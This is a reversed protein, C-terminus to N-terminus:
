GIRRLRAVFFGDCLSLTGPLVGPLVRLWGNDDIAEDFGPIEGPLLPVTELKAVDDTAADDDSGPRSLLWQVQDESEQRLLSCTAYVMIGGIDLLKGAAHAALERQVVLLEELDPPSKRLVDPRRAGVGTASCPADVLVGSIKSCGPDPLWQRGDAVIVECFHEMKMRQINDKLPKIRRPSVEIATVKGFGLSCLQITKGGPSSCLDVVHMDGPSSPAAAAQQRDESEGGNTSTTETAFISQLVSDAMSKSAAPPKMSSSTALGIKQKSGVDGYFRCLGNFLAIAPLTASPDQVWWDGDNFLPWLSVKGMYQKPVKISGQPLIETVYPNKEDVDIEEENSKSNNNNKRDFTQAIKQIKNRSSGDLFNGTRQNVSIFIPSQEMSAEMITKTKEGGYTNIWEEILTPEFNDFISTQTDLVERGERDISRLVANVFSIKSKRYLQSKLCPTLSHTLSNSGLAYTNFFNPFALAFSNPFLILVDHDWETTLDFLERLCCCVFM